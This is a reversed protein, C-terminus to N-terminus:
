RGARSRASRYGRRLSRSLWDPLLADVLLALRRATPRVLSRVLHGRAESRRGADLLEEGHWARADTVARRIAAPAVRVDGEYAAAAKQLARLYNGSLAVLYRRSTLQDDAGFRYRVTPVDILGVPGAASTRLHFDFDEGSERFAPDFLGVADLRSRSIIVSSTHVLNGAIMRALIDGWWVRAGPPGGADDLPASKDFLDRPEVTRWAAYVRSLGGALSAGAADVADLETWLMGVEPHRAFCALQLDIKGPLWVDDSDLFAIFEGTSATIGDNRAAAPGGREARHILRLRPDDIADVVAVTADTSADDVVIVEAVSRGQDCASRIADGILHSRNYTPIVVSVRPRDDQSM